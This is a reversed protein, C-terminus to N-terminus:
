GPPMADLLERTRQVILSEMIRDTHIYLRNEKVAALVMRGVDDPPTGAQLIRDALALLEGERQREEPTVDERAPEQARTNALINTRVPGPCLVSVGIGFPELERRMAESLGVVAFKSTTYMAGSSVALGAGSATNVIHGGGGEIMRPIFIQMGNIVGNVNIGMVWDWLDFTLKNVPAGGAVGANNCLISVPGLTAEIEDAIRAYTRRDRVDLRVTQVATISKLEARATALAEDDVDALALKAGAGAFARAMGLGIGRAGGTIFATRGEIRDMHVERAVFRAMFHRMSGSREFPTDPRRKAQESPVSTAFRV